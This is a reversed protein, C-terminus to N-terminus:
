RLARHVMEIKKLYRRFLSTLQITFTQHDKSRIAYLDERLCRLRSGDMIQVIVFAPCPDYNLFKVVSIAQRQGGGNRDQRLYANGNKFTQPRTIQLELIM